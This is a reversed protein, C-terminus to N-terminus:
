VAQAQGFNGVLLEQIKEVVEALSTEFKVLYGNAGLNEAKKIDERQSLDSWVLVPTTIKNKRMEELVKFGDLEPMILDLLILGPPGHEEIYLLAQTGSTVGVAEFGQCRLLEALTSTCNPDDDVVLVTRSNSQTSEGPTEM